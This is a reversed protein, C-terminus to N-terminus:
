ETIETRPTTRVSLARTNSKAEVRGVAKFNEGDLSHEVDFYDNNVESSTSWSLINYLESNLLTFSSYVVPLTSSLVSLPIADLADAYTGQLNNRGYYNAPNTM